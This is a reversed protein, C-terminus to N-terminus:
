QRPTPEPCFTAGAAEKRPQCVEAAVQCRDCVLVWADRMPLHLRAAELPECELMSGGCSPCRPPDTPAFCRGPSPPM